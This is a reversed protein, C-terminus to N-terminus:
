AHHAHELRRIGGELYAKSRDAAIWRRDLRDAVVATTLSGAFFDCVVDGPDTTLKIAFEPLAEPYRAPHVPLNRSRCGDLYARSIGANSAVILSEPIAGGNDTQFSRSTIRHGSPRAGADTGRQLTERMRQSYPVLVNRNDAKPHATKSLWWVNELTHRVRVRRVTVWAAPAPLRTPSRWYLKQAVHYGLQDVLAILLREQYLSMTPEGTVWVDGLNLLLSGDDTLLDKWAAARETLWAIHEREARNGYQKQRNLPYPPSTCILHVSGPQIQREVAEAEGWLVIGNRDEYLIVVIGPRANELADQATTTLAWTGVSVPTAVGRLKALQLVWRVTRDWSRIKKGGTTTIVRDRAEPALSIRNALGDAVDHVRMPHGSDHLIQSLPLLLQRQSRADNM